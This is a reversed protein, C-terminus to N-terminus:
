GHCLSANGVIHEVMKETEMQLEGMREPFFTSTIYYNLYQSIISIVLIRLWFWLAWRMTCNFERVTSGNTLMLECTPAVHEEEEEVCEAKNEHEM